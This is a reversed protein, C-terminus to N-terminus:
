LKNKSRWLRWPYSERRTRSSDEKEKVEKTGEMRALRGVAAWDVEIGEAECAERYVPKSLVAWAMRRVMTPEGPARVEFSPSRAFGIEAVRILIAATLGIIPRIGGVERGTLFSHGRIPWVKGDPGTTKWENITHYPVELSEPEHPFPPTEDLFSAVPHSFLSAVEATNLIPRFTRDLILVVVPTVILDNSALFPELVCLLPVKHRDRPLGIEEFAERRATDEITKDGPDVKGGPLSTDGAYTRLTSSRRSLLVYVDGARGVFLAVLVAACRTRPLPLPGIKSKKYPFHYSALNHLCEKSARTLTPIRTRNFRLRPRHYELFNISAPPNMRTDSM